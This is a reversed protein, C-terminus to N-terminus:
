NQSPNYVEMSFNVFVENFFIGLPKYADCKYLLLYSDEETKICVEIRDVLEIWENQTLARVQGQGILTQSFCLYEAYHLARFRIDKLARVLEEYPMFIPM